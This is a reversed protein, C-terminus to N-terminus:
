TILCHSRIAVYLCNGVIIVTFYFIAREREKEIEAEKINLLNLISPKLDQTDNKQMKMAIEFEFSKNLFSCLHLEGNKSIKLDGERKLSLVRSGLFFWLNMPMLNISRRTDSATTYRIPTLQIGAVLVNRGDFTSKKRFKGGEMRNRFGVTLPGSLPLLPSSSSIRFPLVYPSRSLHVKLPQFINPPLLHLSWLRQGM